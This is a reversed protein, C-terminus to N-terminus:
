LYKYKMSKRFPFDDSLLKSLGAIYYNQWLNGNSQLRYGVVSYIDSHCAVLITVFYMDLKTDGSVNQLRGSSFTTNQM